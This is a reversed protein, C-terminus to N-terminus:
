FPIDDNFGAPQGGGGFPDPAPGPAFPDAQRGAGSQAGEVEAIERARQRMQAAFQRLEADSMPDSLKVQGAGPRNVWAVKARLKGDYEEHEIVINVEQNLSGLNTLDDGKWGCYRLAECTRKWTKETFYGFWTISHGAYSGDIIQFEVAVQKTGSKAKGWQTSQAVALYTGAPIM